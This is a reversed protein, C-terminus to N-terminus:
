GRVMLNDCAARPDKAFMQNAGQPTIVINYRDCTHVCM